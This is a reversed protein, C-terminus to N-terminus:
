KPESASTHTIKKAVDLASHARALAAKAHDVAGVAQDVIYAKADDWTPFYCEYQTLRRSARGDIIVSLETFKDIAVPEIRVSNWAPKTKYWTLSM